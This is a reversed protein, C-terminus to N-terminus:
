RKTQAHRAQTANHSVLYNAHHTYAELVADVEPGAFSNLYYFCPLLAYVRYADQRAEVGRFAEMAVDLLTRDGTFRYLTAAAGLRTVPEPCRKLFAQMGPVAAHSRLYALTEVVLLDTTGAHLRAILAQELARREAASLADVLADVLAENTFGERHAYTAPPIIDDLNM